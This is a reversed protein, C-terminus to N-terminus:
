SSSRAQTVAESALACIESWELKDFLVASARQALRRWAQQMEDAPVVTDERNSTRYQYILAARVKPHNVVTIRKVSDGVLRAWADNSSHLVRHAMEASVTHDSSAAIQAAIRGRWWARALPCDSLVSVKGRVVPLGGLRRLLNRTAAENDKEQAGSPLRGLLADNLREGFNGQGIWHIHCRTWFLPQSAERATVSGVWAAVLDRELEFPPDLFESPDIPRPLLPVDREDSKDIGLQEKLHEALSVSGGAVVTILKRQCEEIEEVPRSMRKQVILSRQWDSFRQELTAGPRNM